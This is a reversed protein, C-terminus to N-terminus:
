QCSRTQTSYKKIISQIKEASLNRIRTKTSVHISEEIYNFGAKEVFPGIGSRHKAANYLSEYNAALYNDNLPEGRKKIAQIEAIIEADNRPLRMKRIKKAEFGGTELTNDWSGFFEIGKIYLQFFHKNIFKANLPYGCFHLWNLCWLVIEPTWRWQNKRNM